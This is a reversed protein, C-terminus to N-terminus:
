CAPSTRTQFQMRTQDGHCFCKEGLCLIKSDFTSQQQLAVAVELRSAVWPPVDGNDLLGGGLVLIADFHASSQARVHSACASLNRECKRTIRSCLRARAIYRSLM